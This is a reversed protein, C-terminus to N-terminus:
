FLCLLFHCIIKANRPLSVAIVFGAFALWVIFRQQFKSLIQIAANVIKKAFFAVRQLIGVDSEVGSKPAERLFFFFIHPIVQCQHFGAPLAALVTRLTEADAATRFEATVHTLSKSLVSFGGALATQAAAIFRDIVAGDGELAADPRATVEIRYNM